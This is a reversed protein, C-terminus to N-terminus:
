LNSIAIGCFAGMATAWSSAFYVVRERLLHMIEQGGFGSVLDLGFNGFFQWFFFFVDM